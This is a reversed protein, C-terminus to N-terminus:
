LVTAGGRRSAGRGQGDEGGTGEAGEGEGVAGGKGGAAHFEDPHQQIYARLEEVLLKNWAKQGSEAQGNIM